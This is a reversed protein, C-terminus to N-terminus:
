DFFLNTIKIGNEKALERFNIAGFTNKSYKIDLTKVDDWLDSKKHLLALFSQQESSLKFRSNCKPCRNGRTRFVVCAKHQCDGCDLANGPYHPDLCIGCIREKPLAFDCSPVFHVNCKGNLIMKNECRRGTKKIEDCYTM